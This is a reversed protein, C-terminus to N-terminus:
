RIGSDYIVTLGTVRGATVTFAQAPAHPFAGPTEPVLTYSGPALAVRFEGAADTQFRLVERGRADLVSLTAQYPRDPCPSGVQVVPCSPGLSVRGEIGTGPPPAAPAAGCAALLLLSLLFFTRM